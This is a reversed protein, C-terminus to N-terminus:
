RINRFVPVLAIFSCLLILGIFIVPIFYTLTAKGATLKESAMVAIITLVLAYVGIVLSFVWVLILGLLVQSFLFVLLSILGGVLGSPALVASMCVVLDSWIGKGGLLHAIWHYIGTSIVMGIVAFIPSLIAICITYVWLSTFVPEINQMTQSSITTTAIAVFFSTVAIWIFGRTTSHDPQILLDQFSAVGPDSWINWWIEYWKKHVVPQVYDSTM